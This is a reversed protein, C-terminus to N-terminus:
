TAGLGLFVMLNIAGDAKLAAFASENSYIKTYGKDTPADSSGSGSVGWAVVIGLSSLLECSGETLHALLFPLYV